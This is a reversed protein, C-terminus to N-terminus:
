VQLLSPQKEQEKGKEQSSLFFSEVGLRPRISSDSLIKVNNIVIDTSQRYQSIITSDTVLKVQKYIM